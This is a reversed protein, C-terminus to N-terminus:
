VDSCVFMGKPQKWLITINNLSTCNYDTEDGEGGCNLEFNQTGEITVKEIKMYRKEEYGLIQTKMSSIDGSLALNVIDM